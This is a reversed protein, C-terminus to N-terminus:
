QKVEMDKTLLLPEEDISTSLDVSQLHCTKKENDNM